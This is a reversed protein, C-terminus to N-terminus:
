PVSSLPLLSRTEEEWRGLLSVRPLMCCSYVCTLGLHNFELRQRNPKDTPALGQKATPPPHQKHEQTGGVKESSFPFKSSPSIKFSIEMWGRQVVQPAEKGGWREKGELPEM